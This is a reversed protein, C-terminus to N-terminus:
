KRPISITVSYTASGMQTDAFYVDFGDPTPELTIVDRGTRNLVRAKALDLERAQEPWGPPAVALDTWPQGNFRVDRPAQWRLHENWLNEGAFVFRDSGDVMASLTIEVPPLLARQSVASPTPAAGGSDPSAVPRTTGVWGGARGLLLGLGLGALFLASLVLAAAVLIVPRRFASVFNPAHQPM